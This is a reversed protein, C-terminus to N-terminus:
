CFNDRLVQALDDEVEQLSPEKGEVMLGAVMFRRDRKSLGARQLVNGQSDVMNEEQTAFVEDQPDWVPSEYTLECQVGNETSLSNYYEELTPKRTTFYSTVGHLSMPVTIEEKAFHIAHNHGTPNETLFKPTEDLRVDNVRVQM